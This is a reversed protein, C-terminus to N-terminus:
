IPVPNQNGKLIEVLEWFSAKGMRFHCKFIGDDFDPEHIAEEWWRRHYSVPKWIKSTSYRSVSLLTLLQLVEEDSLIASNEFVNQLGFLLFLQKLDEKQSLRPM